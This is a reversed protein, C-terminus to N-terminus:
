YALAVGDKLGIAFWGPQPPPVHVVYGLGESLYVQYCDVEAVGQGSADYILCTKANPFLERPGWMPTLWEVGQQTVTMRQWLTDDVADEADVQLNSPAINLETIREAYRNYAYDSIWAPSCYSMFDTHEEPDKLLDTVRDYGWAGLRAGAYPYNPDIDCPNGPDDVIGCPAHCQGHNHGLEHTFTAVGREGFGVGVGVRYDASGRGLQEVVYAIGATCGGNGGASCYQNFSAAPEIIGYLYQDSTLGLSPRLPQLQSQLLGTWNVGLGTQGSAVAPLVTAEVRGTPYHNEIADAYTKVTQEDLVPTRGDHVLPLLAIKIVGTEIASLSATDSEPLRAVGPTGVPPPGCEALEVWLQTSSTISEAPIDINFTSDLEVQRSVQSITKKEFFSETTDGNQLFVRASLPRATSGPQPEVFVRVMADKGAIVDVTRQSPEVWGAEGFLETEVAQYLLVQRLDVGVAAGGCGDQDFLCVGETCSEHSACARDCTGCHAAESATDVCSDGCAELGSACVCSGTQCTKGSTCTSDCGGCHADDAQTDVCSDGCM